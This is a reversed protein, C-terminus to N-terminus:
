KKGFLGQLFGSKKTDTTKGEIPKTYNELTDPAVCAAVAAQFVEGLGEQSKASCERYALGGLKKTLAKGEDTTVPKVGLKEVANKDNRLDV